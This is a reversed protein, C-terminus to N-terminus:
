PRELRVTKASRRAAGAESQAKIHAVDKFSLGKAKRAKRAHNWGVVKAAVDFGLEIAKGVLVWTLRV